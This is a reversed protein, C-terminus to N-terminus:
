QANKLIDSLKSGFDDVLSNMLDSNGGLQASLNNKIYDKLVDLMGTTQMKFAGGQVYFNKVELATNLNAVHFSLMSASVFLKQGVVTVGEPLHSKMLGLGTETPVTVRGVKLQQVDIALRKQEADMSVAAKATLGLNVGKYTVPVYAEVLNQAKDPTLHIGKITLDSSKGGEATVKQLLYAVYGNMEEPTISVEEGTGAAVILKTTIEQSPSDKYKGANDDTLALAVTGGILLLILAVVSLVSILVIKKKPSKKVGPSTRIVQLPKSM